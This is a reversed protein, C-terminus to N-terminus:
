ETRCKLSWFEKTLKFLLVHGFSFLTWLTLITFFDGNNSSIEDFKKLRWNGGQCQEKSVKPSGCQRPTRVKEFIIQILDSGTVHVPIGPKQNRYVFALVGICGSYGHCARNKHPSESLTRHSDQHTDGRPAAPWQKWPKTAEPPPISNTNGNAM